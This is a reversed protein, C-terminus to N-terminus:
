NHREQLYVSICCEQLRRIQLIKLINEMHRLWKKKNMHTGYIFSCSEKTLFAKEGRPSLCYFAGYGEVNYKNIYGLHLLKDTALQIEEKPIGSWLHISKVTYGCGEFAGIMCALKTSMLQKAVDRKFEKVGFKGVAKLSVEVKLLEKNETVTLLEPHSIHLKEWLEVESLEQEEEQEPEPQEQELQESVLQEQTSEEQESDEQEPLMTKPIEENATEEQVTPEATTLLDFQLGMAIPEEFYPVLKYIWAFKKKADPEDYASKLWVYSGLKEKLQEADESELDIEALEQKRNKLLAEIEAEESHLNMFLQVADMYCEKDALRKRNEELALEVQKMSCPLPGFKLMEYQSTIKKQITQVKELRKRVADSLEDSIFADEDMTQKLRSINSELEDTTDRLEGLIEQLNRIEDLKSM